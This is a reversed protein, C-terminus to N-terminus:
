LWRRTRKKYEVWQAGFKAALIGEEVRIVNREILAVYGVLVVLPALSRLLVVIGIQLLLFGLYIPNRSIGYIGSTVMVAPEHFPEPSTGARRFAMVALVPAATGLALPLIGLLNWPKPFIVPEPFVFHLLVIILVSVLVYVPPVVKHNHSEM